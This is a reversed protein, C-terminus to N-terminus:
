EIGRPRGDAPDLLRNKREEIAVTIEDAVSYSVVALLWVGASGAVWVADNPTTVQLLSGVFIGLLINPGSKHALLGLTVSKLRDKPTEFTKM